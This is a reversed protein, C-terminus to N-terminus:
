RHKRRRRHTDAAKDRRVDTPFQEKILKPPTSQDVLAMTFPDDPGFPTPLRPADVALPEAWGEAVMMAAFTHSVNYESGEQFHSLDVGDVNDGTPAHLIRIRLPAVKTTATADNIDTVTIRLQARNPATVATRSPKRRPRVTESRDDRLQERIVRIIHDRRERWKRELESLREKAKADWNRRREPRPAEAVFPTIATATGRTHM